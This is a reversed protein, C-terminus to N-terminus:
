TRLQVIIQKPNSKTITAIYIKFDKKSQKIM